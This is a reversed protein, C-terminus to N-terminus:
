HENRAELEEKTAKLYLKHIPREYEGTSTRVKVQRVLNDKGPYTQAILAM